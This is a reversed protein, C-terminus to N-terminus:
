RNLRRLGIIQLVGLVFVVEAQLAIFWRGAVHFQAWFLFLVLYSGVAWAFNLTLIIRGYRGRAEIDATIWYISAVFPGFGLGLALILWPPVDPGILRAVPGAAFIFVLSSLLSFLADSQLVRRLFAAGSDHQQTSFAQTQM